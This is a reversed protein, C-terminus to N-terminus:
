GELGTVLTYRRAPTFQRLPIKVTGLATGNGLPITLAPLRGSAAVQGDPGVVRWSTVAGELPAPGFHAVELDARFTESVTWYRKDMRALPVTSNCFRRYEEPTVYGKGEWFPDLVGVLATGQGPFDCLGLLHFGGFGPTRLASEIDEKYCLVQLKGSAALFDKAQDGMHNAELFERFIEFNKPRLVGTYKRIEEFNPYVCWQGIEHSVIPVPRKEVWERYDTRTEPPRANIRSRLGAGWAQIRPGPINHYQNEPIEPWGAASTYLRRPDKQRWHRVWAALWAKQNKGGPENGYAMMVFSPHNGYAQLIREGEAYLWADVPKGDGVSTWAACEVQYYFGMEDGAM